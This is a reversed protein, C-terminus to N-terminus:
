IHGRYFAYYFNLTQIRDLRDDFLDIATKYTKIYFFFSKKKKKFFRNKKLTITFPRYAHTNYQTVRSAARSISSWYIFFDNKKKEVEEEVGQTWYPGYDSHRSVCTNRAACANTMAGTGEETCRM